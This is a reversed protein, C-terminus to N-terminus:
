RGYLGRMEGGFDRVIAARWLKLSPTLYGNEETFEVPDQQGRGDGVRRRTVGELHAALVAPDVERARPRGM